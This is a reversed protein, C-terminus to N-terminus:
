CQVSGLWQPLLCSGVQDTQVDQERIDQDLQRTQCAAATRGAYVGLGQSYQQYLSLPHLVLLDLQTSAHLKAQQQLQMSRCLVAAAQKRQADSLPPPPPQLTILVGTSTPAAGTSSSRLSVPGPACCLLWRNSCELISPCFVHLVTSPMRKTRVPSSSQPTSCLM